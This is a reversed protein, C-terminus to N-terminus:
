RRRHKPAFSGLCGNAGAKEFEAKSCYGIQPLYAGMTPALAEGQPYIILGDPYDGWPLWNIGDAPYANAPRADPDSIVFTAIGKRLVAQYDAICGVYRTTFKENECISWYRVQQGPQWPPEGATTDPFRPM